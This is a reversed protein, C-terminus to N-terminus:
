RPVPPPPIRLSGPGGPVAASGGPSPVVPPQTPGSTPAPGPVGPSGQSGPNGGVPPETPAPAPNTGPALSPKKGPAPAQRARGTARPETVMAPGSPAPPGAPTPGPKLADNNFELPTSEVPASVNGTAFVLPITLLLALLAVLAVIATKKSSTPIMPPPFGNKDAKYTPIAKQDHEKDPGREKDPSSHEGILTTSGVLELQELIRGRLDGPVKIVPLTSLMSFPTVMKRRLSDCVSCNDIHRAVRKRWVMTFRGDWGSLVKQLDRCDNRGQRVVLLAGLSREVQDRMRSLLVYAHSASVGIALGLEEGELGQSLHLDLLVRDRDSLGASSDALLQALENQAAIEAPEAATDTVELDETTDTKASRGLSRMATHRAIAFLWPRLKEPDKLQGLRSGAALFTDQLADAADERNRMISCLFSYLRDGYRDYIDAFASKSGECAARVLAADDMPIEHYGFM